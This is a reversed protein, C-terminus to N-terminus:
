FRMLEGARFRWEPTDIVLATTDLTYWPSLNADELNTLVQIEQAPMYSQALMFVQQGSKNVAMDVVIVAHGPSGGRIFVDGIQMDQLSVPHLEKSLSLTGAYSFVFELYQWFTAYSNSPAATKTWETKNGNVKVREGKRWREYDVKFGNTLNFHIQSFQRKQWFYEARLRMVADACQHLDKQGIPLDVVATFAATNSKKRGDFLLVPSVAPKLPLARLYYAFAGPKIAMRQFGTPPAFRQEITSDAAVVSVNSAVTEPSTRQFCAQLLMLIPFLLKM